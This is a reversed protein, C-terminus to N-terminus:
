VNKFDNAAMEQAAKVVYASAGMGIAIKLWAEITQPILAEWSGKSIRVPIEFEIQSFKSNELRVFFKIAEDFGLLAQASKRADMYGEDVLKGTYKLYGLIEDSEAM